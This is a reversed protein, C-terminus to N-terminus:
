PTSTRGRKADARVANQLYRRNSSLDRPGRFSGVLNGMLDLCSATPKRTRGKRLMGELCGRIVASKPVGRAAAEREIERLLEEPLKLSIATM